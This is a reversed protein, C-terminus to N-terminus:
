SGHALHKLFYTGQFIKGLKQRIMEERVGNISYSMVLVFNTDTPISCQSHGCALLPWKKPVLIQTKNQQKYKSNDAFFDCHETDRLNVNGVSLCLLGTQTQQM